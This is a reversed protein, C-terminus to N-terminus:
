LGGISSSMSLLFVSAFWENATLILFRPQFHYLVVSILWLLKSGSIICELQSPTSWNVGTQLGCNAKTGSKLCRLEVPDVACAGCMSLIQEM